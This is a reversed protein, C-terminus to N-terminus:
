SVDLRTMTVAATKQLSVDKGTVVLRQLAYRLDQNLHQRGCYRLFSRKATCDM